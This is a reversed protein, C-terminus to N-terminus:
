WGYKQSQVHRLKHSQRGRVAKKAVERASQDRQVRWLRASICRRLPLPWSRLADQVRGQGDVDSALLVDIARNVPEEVVRGIGVTLAFSQLLSGQALSHLGPRVPKTLVPALRDYEQVVVTLAQRIIPTTLFAHYDRRAGLSMRPQESVNPPSARRHRATLFALLEVPGMAGQGEGRVWSDLVAAGTKAHAQLAAFREPGLLEPLTADGVEYLDAGHIPCLFTWPLALAKRHVDARCEACRHRNKRAVMIRAGPVFDRCTMVQLSVESLGTRAAILAGEGESLCWELDFVDRQLLGLEGLFESVTMAYFTAMRALWSSLREDAEPPFVVPLRGQGTM